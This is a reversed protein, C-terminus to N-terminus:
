INSTNTCRHERPGVVGGSIAWTLAEEPAIQTPIVKSANIMIVYGSTPNPATPIYIAILEDNKPLKTWKCNQSAIFGLTYSGPGPWEIMVVDKFSGGQGNQISSMLQKTAGYITRAVPIHMVLEDLWRLLQAGIFNGVLVGVLLLLLLTAIGSAAALQWYAPTSLGFTYSLWNTPGDFINVLADFIVRLAWFTIVSPLLTVFGTLLYKRM